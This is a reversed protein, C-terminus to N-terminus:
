LLPEAGKQPSALMGSVKLKANAKAFGVNNVAACFYEGEDQKEVKNFALVLDDSRNRRKLGDVILEGDSKYWLIDKVPQGATVICRFHVKSGILM